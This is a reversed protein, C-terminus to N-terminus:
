EPCDVPRARVPASPRAAATDGVQRVDTHATMVGALEDGQSQLMLSVGALAGPHGVYISDTGQKRWYAFPHDQWRGESWARAQYVDDGYRNILSPWATMRATELRVISPVSWEARRADAQAGMEDPWLALEYCGALSEPTMTMATEEQGRNACAAAFAALLLILSADIKFSM